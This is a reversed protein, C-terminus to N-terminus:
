PPWRASGAYDLIALGDADERDDAIGIPETSYNGGRRRRLLWRGSASEEWRQYGLHDRGAIITNWHPQRGGRLRKRATRNQLKAERITGAM